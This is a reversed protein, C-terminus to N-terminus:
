SGNYFTYSIDFMFGTFGEDRGYERKGSINKHKYYGTFTFRTLFSHGIGLFIDYGRGNFSNNGLFGPDNGLYEYRWKAFPYYTINGSIFINSKKYIKHM